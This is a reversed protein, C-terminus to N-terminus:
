LYGQIGAARVSVAFQHEPVVGVGRNLPVGESQRLEGVKYLYQLSFLFDISALYLVPLFAQIVGSIKCVGEFKLIVWAAYFNDSSGLHMSSIIIKDRGEKEIKRALHPM